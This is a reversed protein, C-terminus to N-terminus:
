VRTRIQKVTGCKECRLHYIHGAYFSSRELSVEKFTDWKHECLGLLKRLFKIM